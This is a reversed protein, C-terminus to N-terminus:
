KKVMVKQSKADWYLKDKNDEYWNSWRKYDNATPSIPGLDGGTSDTEIGTLKGFFDIAEGTNRGPYPAYTIKHDIYNKVVLLEREVEKCASPDSCVKPKCSAFLVLLYIM